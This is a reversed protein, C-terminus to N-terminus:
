PSLNLYFFAENKTTEFTLIGSQINFKVVIEITIKICM